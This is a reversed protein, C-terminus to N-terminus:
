WYILLFLFVRGFCGDQSHSHLVDQCILVRLSLLFGQSVNRGLGFTSVASLIVGVGTVGTM